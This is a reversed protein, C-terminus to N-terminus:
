GGSILGILKFFWVFGVDVTFLIASFLLTMFIIVQTSRTVAKRSPWTVKRMESETMIQFEAFKPSNVLVFIGLAAVAGVTLTVSSRLYIGFSNLIKTWLWNLGILLVLTMGAVTGFRVYIGQGRKYIEFKIV